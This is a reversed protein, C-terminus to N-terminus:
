GLKQRKSSAEGGGADPATDMPTPEDDGAFLPTFRDAHTEHHFLMTSSFTARRMLMSPIKTWSVSDKLRMISTVRRFTM